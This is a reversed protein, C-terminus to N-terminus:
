CSVMRRGKSPNSLSVELLSLAASPVALFAPIPNQWLLDERKTTLYVMKM